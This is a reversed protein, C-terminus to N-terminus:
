VLNSLTLYEEWIGVSRQTLGIEEGLYRGVEERIMMKERMTM